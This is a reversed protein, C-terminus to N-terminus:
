IHANITTINSYNVHTNSIRAAGHHAVTHNKNATFLNRDLEATVICQILFNSCNKTEKGEKRLGRIQGEQLITFFDKETAPM